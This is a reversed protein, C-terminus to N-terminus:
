NTMWELNCYVTNPTVQLAIFHYKQSANTSGTLYIFSQKHAILILIESVPFPFKSNKLMFGLKLYILHTAQARKCSLGQLLM